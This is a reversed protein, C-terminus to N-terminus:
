IIWIMQIRKNSNRKKVVDNIKTLLLDEEDKIQLFLFPGKPVM